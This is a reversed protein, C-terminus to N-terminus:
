DGSRDNKRVTTAVKLLESSLTLRANEASALNVEFRVREGELVFQIMGGRRSFDPMDSVTLVAESDLAVLIERLHKQETSNIFLIRCDAAEQPKSLRRTVVPRGEISEGALTSDLVPGFPDQGLVCITFTSDNNAAGKAPWQVFRGFNYLYAAKVQYENPKPQQTRLCPVVLLSWFLISAFIRVAGRRRTWSRGGSARQIAGARKVHAMAATPIVKEM